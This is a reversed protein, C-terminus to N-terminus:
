DGQHADQSIDGFLQRALIVAGHLPESKPEVILEGYREILMPYLRRGFGGVVAIAKAGHGMFWHVYQDIAAMEFHMLEQAVADGKEFHEFFAPVFEGYDAPRAPRNIEPNDFSWAMLRNPDMNFKAMIAETLPSGPILGEHALLSKRVLERGLIAGSMTDGVFFGWGGIQHRKGDILGLGASGTGVILVAGDEGEHAGARAIDIDDYVQMNAFPYDRAAFSNRAAELRGGAMGFCASTNAAEAIDLGANDYVRDILECVAEYAADGDRVQLNSPKETIAEGLTNLNADSLRMRCKTGGGDVGLFLRQM